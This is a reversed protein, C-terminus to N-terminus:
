NKDEDDAVATEEVVAAETAEAPTEEVVAAPTEEAPKVEAVEEAPKVEAVEEPKVEAVEEPKEEVAEAPAQEAVSISYGKKEAVLLEKLLKRVAPIRGRYLTGALDVAYVRLCGLIKKGNNEIVLERLEGCSLEFSLSSRQEVVIRADSQMCKDNKYKETLSFNVKGNQIGLDEIGVDNLSRNGITVGAYRKRTDKDISYFGLFKLRQVAIKSHLRLLLYVTVGILAILIIASILAVVGSNENLWDM